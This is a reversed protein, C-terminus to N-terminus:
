KEIEETAVPGVVLERSVVDLVLEIAPEVAVQLAPSLQMGADMRSPECGVLRVRSPAGGMARVAAFVASLDMSHADAAAPAPADLDPEIVYLSGPEGGRSAVDVIVVLDFPDLLEFALHIGRIGTDRVEVGPPLSRRTLRRVVEVGFGDDGFFVNGVGAVLGRAM